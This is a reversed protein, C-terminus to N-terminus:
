TNLSILYGKEINWSYWQGAESFQFAQSIFVNKNENVFSLYVLFRMWSMLSCSVTSYKEGAFFAVNWSGDTSLSVFKEFSFTQGSNGHLCAYYIDLEDSLSVLNFWTIQCM